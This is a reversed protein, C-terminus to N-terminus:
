RGRILDREKCAAIPTVSMPTENSASCALCIWYRAIWNQQCNPSIEAALSASIGHSLCRSRRYLQFIVSADMSASAAEVESTSSFM